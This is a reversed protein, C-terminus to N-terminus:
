SGPPITATRLSAVAADDVRVDLAALAALLGLAPDARPPAALRAFTAANTELVRLLAAQAPSPLEGIEDLLVTGGHAAEFVGKQQQSAGTFTRWIRM